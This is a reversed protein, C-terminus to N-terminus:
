LVPNSAFKMRKSANVNTVEGPVAKVGVVHSFFTKPDSNKTLNGNIHADFPETNREGKIISVPHKSNIIYQDM